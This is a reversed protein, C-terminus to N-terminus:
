PVDVRAGGKDFEPKLGKTKTRDEGQETGTQAVRQGKRHLKQGRKEQGPEKLRGHGKEV